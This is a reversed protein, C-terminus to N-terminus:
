RASRSPPATPARYSIRYGYVAIRHSAPNAAPNAIQLITKLATGSAVDDAVATYKGM